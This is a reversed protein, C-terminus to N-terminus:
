RSCAAAELSILVEPDKVLILPMWKKWSILFTNLIDIYFKFSFSFVNKEDDSTLVFSSKRLIGFKM